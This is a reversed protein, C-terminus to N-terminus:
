REFEQLELFINSLLYVIDTLNILYSENLKGLKWM